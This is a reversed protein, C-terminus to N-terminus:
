EYREVKIKKNWALPVMSEIWEEIPGFTRFTQGMFGVKRDTWKHDDGKPISLEYALHKGSLNLENTVAEASAPTVIVNGVEVPIEEFVPRNFADLGTQRKEYLTVTIGKLM